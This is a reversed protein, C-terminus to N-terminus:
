SQSRDQRSKEWQSVKAEAMDNLWAAGAFTFGISAFLLFLLLLTM